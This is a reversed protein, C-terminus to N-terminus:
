DNKLINIFLSEFKKAIILPEFPQALLSVSRSKRFRLQKNTLLEKLIKKFNEKSDFLLDTDKILERFVEKNPALVPIEAAMLDVTAMSWLAGTRFPALGIDIQALNSYYEEQTKLHRIEVFDLQQLYQKLNSISSDLKNRLESRNATPDTVLVQFHLENRLEKLWEFIKFGGYHNYLRHNYIIMPIESESKIKHIKLNSIPPPIIAFKNILLNSNDKGAANLFLNLGFNSGIINFDSYLAADLQRQWIFPAINCINLSDDYIRKGDIVEQVAIYHFYTVTPIKRGLIEAILISCPLTMESQNVLIIDLDHVLPILKEKLRLWDFGFRVGYKSDSFPLEICSVKQMLQSIGTSGVMIIDHGLQVLQELVVKQFVFGSDAELNSLNSINLFSLIKM